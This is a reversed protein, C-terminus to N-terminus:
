RPEVSRAMSHRNSEAQELHPRRRVDRQQHRRYQESKRARAQRGVGFGFPQGAIRERQACPGVAQRGVLLGGDQLPRQCEGFARPLAVLVEGSGVEGHEAREPAQHLEAADAPVRQAGDAHHALRDLAGGRQRRVVDVDQDTPAGQQQTKRPQQAAIGRLGLAAEAARELEIRPV